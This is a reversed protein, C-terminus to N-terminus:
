SRCSRCLARRRPVRVPIPPAGGPSLVEGSLVEGALELEGTM